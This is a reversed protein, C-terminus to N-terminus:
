NKRGAQTSLWALLAEREYGVKGALVVRGSPGTGLCDRNALTRPSFPIVSWAERDTRWIIPKQALAQRLLDLADEKPNSADTTM